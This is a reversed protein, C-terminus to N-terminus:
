LSGWAECTPCPGAKLLPRKCREQVQRSNDASAVAGRETTSSNHMLNKERIAEVVLPMWAAPFWIFLSDVWSSPGIMTEFSADTAKIRGHKKEAAGDYPLCVVKVLGNPPRQQEKEPVARFRSSALLLETYIAQVWFKPTLLAANTENVLGRGPHTLVRQLLGTITEALYIALYQGLHMAMRKICSGQSDVKACTVVTEFCYAQLLTEMQKKLNRIPFMLRALPWTPPLNLFRQLGDRGGHFDWTQGFLEQQTYQKKTPRGRELTAAFRRLPSSYHDELDELDTEVDDADVTSATQSSSLTESDSGNPSSDVEWTRSEWHQPM